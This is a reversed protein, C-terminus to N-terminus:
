IPPAALERILTATEDAAEWFPVHGTPLNALRSGAIGQHLELSNDPSVLLDHAGALILTPARIEALRSSTDHRRCAHQQVIFGPAVAEVSVLAGALQPDDDWAGPSLSFLAVSEILRGIEGAAHLRTWHDLLALMHRRPRAWTSILVLATIDAPHRLAWEQVVAGGMSCGVAVVPGLELRELLRHADDALTAIDSGEPLASSAGTGRNDFAVCAFGDSLREILPDFLTHDDGLGAVFVIAPGDGTRAVLLSAGGGVDVQQQNV